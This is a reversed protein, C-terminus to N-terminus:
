FLNLEEAKIVAARRSNVNLKGFINKTHTRLTSLGIVLRAAIEPGSLESRFLQLVELERSSLPEILPQKASPAPLAPQGQAFAALLRQTYSLSVKRQAAAALLRQMPPGEDVFVRVYGAPEALALADGLAALAGAQDGREQRALALLILIEIAAGTRSGTQAASLLRELLGTADPLSQRHQDRTHLALLLRALTIHEFEQLYTLQDEASLERRSAWDLAEELRGQRMWLHARMAPIPRVQPSFDSFYVREAEDLLGLAVDLDGAAGEVVSAAYLRALAARLRYPHQPLGMHEGLEEAQRLRQRAAELTNQESLLMSLGVHMDAAGRLLPAASKTALELGWEYTRRAAGLRGLELHIDAITIASAVADAIFGAKQVDAMGQMYTRQAAELDGSRWLVLGLMAAAAGRSLPDDEVALELARRAHRMTDDLNGLLLAQGARHMVVAAPLRRLAERDAAIGPSAANAQARQLGHEAASLWAEVGELKGSQLLVGAFGNCLAPRSHIVAEPLGRLWGLLTGEQRSRSMAPFVREILGAAHEYDQGALAHRIADPLEGQGEFWASARRHLESIQGPQEAPLHARLVEAFLHHYRYWQRRDDLPIVFFNGRLLAELRTGADAQGTVAACLSGHLRDLISSQLLFDRTPNPLSALVEEVLYDMIYRHDGAFARIFGAQDQGSTIGPGQMALAALQLGAIWGETREDLAAVEQVTLHIGMNALFEAADAPAFRLDAARLETLQGRARLRALPFGPDERTTIVVHLNPPQREILFALAADIPQSDIRHYDDLVLILKGPIAAIENVLAALTSEIPAPQSAQWAEARESALEPAAGKLAASLYSLFRGPDGDDEDLSLWASRVQAEGASETRVQNDLWESVLTTKGFGAPASILTLKRHLGQNLREILRPRHVANPAVQPIYLKTALVPAFM